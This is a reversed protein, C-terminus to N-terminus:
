ISEVTKINAVLQDISKVGFIVSTIKPEKLIHAFAAKIKKQETENENNFKNIKKLNSLWYVKTWKWSRFDSNPFKYSMSYKGTLMGQALPERVILDIQAPYLRSSLKNIDIASLYNYPISFLDPKYSQLILDIDELSNVSIGVAKTKGTSKINELFSFIKALKIDTQEPGHLFYIDLQPIQLRELSKDLAHGLYIVDFNKKITGPKTTFDRGGKSSIILKNKVKDPLNGIIKETEGLGYVDATDIFNIGMDVAKTIISIVLEDSLPEGWWGKFPYSGLSIESVETNLSFLQRYKM